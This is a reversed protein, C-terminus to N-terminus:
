RREHKAEHLKKELSRSYDRESELQVRLKEVMTEQAVSVRM